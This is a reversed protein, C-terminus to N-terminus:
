LLVICLTPVAGVQVYRRRPVPKDTAMFKTAETTEKSGPPLAGNLGHPVMAPFAVHLHGSFWFRPKCAQLLQWNAPSGLTDSEVESRFWPKCKLLSAKDGYHAIRIPWDHSV